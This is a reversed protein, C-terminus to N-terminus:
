QLKKRKHNKGSTVTKGWVFNDLTEGIFYFMTSFLFMTLLFVIRAPTSLVEMVPYVWIGSKYYIIHIWILYALLFLCHGSIGKARSPYKRPTLITELIASVMIMTHMLHNLWWPFYPDIAKPFVLERDVFMLSWFTVGVFMAVPFSFVAHMFDKLKRLFPPKKPSVANTGFWDNLSCILFFVAQIIVGWMTLYKLLGPDFKKFADNLSPINLQTVSYFTFAYTLFMGTHFLQNITYAM